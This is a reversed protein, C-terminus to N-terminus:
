CAIQHFTLCNWAGTGFHKGIFFVIKPIRLSKVRKSVSPFSAAVPLDSKLFYPMSPSFAGFLSVTFIIVMVGVRAELGEEDVVEEPVRVSVTARDLSTSVWELIHNLRHGSLSPLFTMFLSTM